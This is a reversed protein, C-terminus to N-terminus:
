DKRVAQSVQRTMHLFLFWASVVAPLGALAVSGWFVGALLFVSDDHSSSASQNAGFLSGGVGGLVAGLFLMKLTRVFWVRAQELFAPSGM